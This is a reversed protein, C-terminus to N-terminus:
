GNLKEVFKQFDYRKAQGSFNREFEIFDLKFDIGWRLLHRPDGALYTIHCVYKGNEVFFYGMAFLYPVSIVWGYEMLQSVAQEFDEGRKEYQEKVYQRPTIEDWNM